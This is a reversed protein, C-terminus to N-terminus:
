RCRARRRRGRSRASSSANRSAQALPRNPLGIARTRKRAPRMSTTQPTSELVPSGHDDLGVASRHVEVGGAGGVVSLAATPPRSGTHPAAPRVPRPRPGPGSPPSRSQRRVGSPRSGALRRRSASDRGACRSGAHGASRTRPGPGARRPAVVLGPWPRDRVVGEDVEPRRRVPKSHSSAKPWGLRRGSGPWRSASRDDHTVGVPVGAVGHHGPHAPPVKSQSSTASVSATM